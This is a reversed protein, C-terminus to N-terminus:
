VVTTHKATCALSSFLLPATTNLKNRMYRPVETSSTIYMLKRKYYEAIGTTAQVV